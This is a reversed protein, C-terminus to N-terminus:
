LFWGVLLLSFYGCTLPEFLSWTVGRFGSTSRQSRHFAGQPNVQSSHERRSCWSCLRTKWPM